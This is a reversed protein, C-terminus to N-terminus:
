SVITAILDLYLMTHEFKLGYNAGHM